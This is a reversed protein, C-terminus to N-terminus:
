HSAGSASGSRQLWTALAPLERSRLDICNNMRELAQRLSREADPVPHSTFFTRVDDRLGPDCFSGTTEVLGGTNYGGMIRNIDQWHSQVFSWALKEGAPNEMVSSILGLSDQSRVAPTLALDLTKRLLAPESFHALTFLYRYYQQPIKTSQLKAQIADYLSADGELAALRFVTGELSPDVSGPTALDKRALERATALVQPDRGTYGLTYIVYARLEKHNNDEGPVPQWGVEKLIPNLLNRVFDQFQTRDADSVLYRGAYELQGDMQSIVDSNRESQLADALTLFDSIPQQGARVAAWVDRLLVIREAPSFNKEANHTMQQFTGSDYGNRYYGQANANGFVWGNCGPITFTQERASLLEPQGTSEVNGKLLVPVQWLEVTSKKLLDEDYFFRRQSLTVRTENGKCESRVSVVPAGPQDVFTPMIRDVPKHSARALANWFDTRTANGYAHAQLYANVGARFTDPTLYSELMRLVAATKGYAIGDFLEQIQAPTDAPQHIPRTNQLSDVNLADGTDSVDSLDLRWEPKWAEVPKSEMWTAFGENLWIDDWWEMTVLDGFWQHAMEHTIVTAIGKKASTPAKNEDVLLAVDRFTIAATNEMAGAAFDPLGILDLKKFPYKMGFYQDYYKMCQEAAELAFRGMEKKGPTAWVRIPIGDAAGEIYEFDGVALAVLYTSMKPTTAFKVTHKGEQPGPTDSLVPGNSIALDGKDIVTTIDFTAKYAPEDFSPFARRADTAEFQTVAYKRGNAKSLYFGRLQDNLIGGYRIHITAPGVPLQKAVALTAMQKEKDLIVSATQTSSGSSITTEHFEVDLANLTITSTPQLIRIHITEDGAFNDKNFDPALTLQYNDPAAVKPLRQATAVTAIAIVIIAVISRRKM